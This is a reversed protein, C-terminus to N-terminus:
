RSSSNLLEQFDVEWIEGEPRIKSQRDCDYSVWRGGPSWYPCLKTGRDDDGVQIIEGTELSIIFIHWNRYM